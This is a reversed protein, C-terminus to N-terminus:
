RIVGGSYKLLKGLLADAAPYAKMASASVSDSYKTETELPGLKERVELVRQGTASTELDSALQAGSLARLAYEATAKLLATPLPGAVDRPFCLAQTDTLQVGKFRKEFFSNIYDTGRVLATEKAATNGAWTSVGRDAFYSDAFAVSAFSNAEPLGSGDEVQFM